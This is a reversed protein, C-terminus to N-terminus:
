TRKQLFIIHAIGYKRKNIIEFKLDNIQELIKEEDDTELIILTEMSIFQINQIIELSQKIYDTQYPPDIYIIDINEKINKLCNEFDTNYVETQEEFHTKEINKNIIQVASKSKDCLIAKEAGRSLAELGIAGSGSFLDLFVSSQIRNQIINFISEKVRDLTPRTATGELTYLKTGRARGGIIRM